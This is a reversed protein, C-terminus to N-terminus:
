KALDSLSRPWVGPMKVPDVGSGARMVAARPAVIRIGGGRFVSELSM